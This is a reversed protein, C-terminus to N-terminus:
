AWNYIWEANIRDVNVCGHSMPRGFNKHWYAYHIYIGPQFRLNWPVDGFDYGPGRYRVKYPKAMVAFTGRPTSDKLGSSILFTRVMAGREYARLRQESLDVEIYKSYKAKATDSGQPVAVFAVPGTGALPGGALALGTRMATDHSYFQARVKGKRDFIRVQPGGGSSPAALIKAVGDRNVDVAALSVGGSFKEGFSKFSTRLAFTLGDFVKVTGDSDALAAMIEVKGDGDLDGAAITIGRHDKKEFAYFQGKVEGEDNFIRIQPGGGRGAGTIIEARGDGDTDGAAVSVGGRFLQGYPTIGSSSGTVAGTRDFIMVRGVVGPGTGVVIDVAGDGNTDGAAVRVGSTMGSDFADFSQIASGDTRLMTVRPALGPGAGVIIEAVGDNGFDAMAVSSGPALAEPQIRRVPVPMKGDAGFSWVASEYAAAPPESAAAAPFPMAALLAILAILRKM